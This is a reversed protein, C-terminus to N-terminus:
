RTLERRPAERRTAGRHSVGSGNEIHSRNNKVETNNHNANQQFMEIKHTVVELHTKLQEKIEEKFDNKFAKLFVEINGPTPEPPQQTM